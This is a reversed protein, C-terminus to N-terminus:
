RPHFQPAFNRYFDNEVANKPQFNKPWMRTTPIKQPTGGACQRFNRYNDVQASDSNKSTHWRRMTPIKRPTIGACQRFNNLLTNSIISKRFIRSKTRAGKFFHTNKCRIFVFLLGYFSVSYAIFACSQTFHVSVFLLM